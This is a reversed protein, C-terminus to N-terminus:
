APFGRSRYQPLYRCVWHLPVRTETLRSTESANPGWSWARRDWVLLCVQVWSASAGSWTSEGEGEELPQQTGRVHAWLEPGSPGSGLGGRHSLVVHACVALDRCVSQEGPVAGRPNSGTGPSLGSSGPGQGWVGRWPAPLMGDPCKPRCAAKPDGLPSAPREPGGSLRPDAQQTGM